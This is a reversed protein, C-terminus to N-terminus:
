IDIEFVMLLINVYIVNNESFLKNGFILKKFFFLIKLLNVNDCILKKMLFFWLFFFMLFLVM